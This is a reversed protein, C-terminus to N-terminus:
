EEEIPERMDEICDDCYWAGGIRVPNTDQQIPQGCRECIPLRELLKTQARDWRDFDRGPDDSYFM